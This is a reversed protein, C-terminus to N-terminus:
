RIELEYKIGLIPLKIRTPEKDRLLYYRSRIRIDKIPNEM